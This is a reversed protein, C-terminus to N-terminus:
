ILHYGYPASPSEDPTPARISYHGKEVVGLVEMPGLFGERPRPLDWYGWWPGMQSIGAGFRTLKQAVGERRAPHPPTCM